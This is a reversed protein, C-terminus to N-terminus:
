GVVKTVKRNAPGLWTGRLPLASLARGARALMVRRGDSESADTLEGAADEEGPLGARGGPRPLRDLAAGKGTPTMLQRIAEFLTRIGEDHSEIKRELETLRAALERHLSLTEQLRVFARMIAINIRVARESRLVSFLMAVGHDTFASPRSRRGGWGSSSIAVQSKM